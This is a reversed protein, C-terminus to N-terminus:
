RAVGTIAVNTGDVMDLNGSLLLGETTYRGAATQSRAVGRNDMDCDQLFSLTPMDALRQRRITLATAARPNKINQFFNIASHQVWAAPVSKKLCIENHIM